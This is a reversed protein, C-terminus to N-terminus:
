LADARMMQEGLIESAAAIRALLRDDGLSRRVQRGLTLLPANGAYFDLRSALSAADDAPLIESAIGINLAEAAGITRASACLDWAITNTTRELLAVHLFAPYMNHRMEPAGFSLGSSAIVVDALAAIMAGTGLTHGHICSIVPVPCRHLSEILARLANAHEKRAEPVQRLEALDSGVCFARRGNARIVLIGKSADVSRIAGILARFMAASIANLKEPRNLTITLRDHETKCVIEDAM